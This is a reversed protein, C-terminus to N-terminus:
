NFISRAPYNCNGNSCVSGHSHRNYSGVMTGDQRTYGRVTENKGADYYPDTGTKPYSYKYGKYSAFASSSTLMILCAIFVKKM